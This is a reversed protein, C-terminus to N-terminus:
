QGRRAAARVAHGRDTADTGQELAVALPTQPDWDVVPLGQRRLRELRAQRQVAALRAGVTDRNTVNPSVVTLEYGRHRFGTMLEVIADDLVPTCVVFQTNSPVMAHLFDLTGRDDSCAASQTSSSATPQADETTSARAAVTRCVRAITGQHDPGTDPELYAPPGRYVGPTQGTTGLAAVGVHHGADSLATTTAIATYSSLTIGDPHGDGAALRASDRGDVIVVVQTAEQERFLITGLDGTRAYRRWNIRSLPDGQQYSRTSHFEYGPGGSDTTVAGVLPITKSHIPVGDLPITCDLETDGEADLTATAVTAGSLSRVRVRVGDFVATGHRPRITYSLVTQEGARLTTATRATGDIVAVGDPVGDAIRVDPITRTATNTVTVEVTVSEGPLPTQPSWHRTVDIASEPVPVSSVAAYGLYPLPVIAALILAPSRAVVGAAVLVISAVVGSQWRTVKVSGM